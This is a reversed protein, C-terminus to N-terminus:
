KELIRCVEEYRILLDKYSSALEEYTIDEDDDSEADSICVGTLASVHRAFEDEEESDEDSWSVMLSKKQKKLYTACETRIHGYGECEHCKVGKTQSNKDELRTKKVNNQQKNIDFRISQGNQKSRRDVRRLVKGFQKGILALADAISEENEGATQSEEDDVNTICAISKKKKYGCENISIEFTQLSGVLEDVKINGIGHAEEIATVKMDFRKPLSRLIKKSLKEDYVKEGLAEFPNAIDLLNMHFDQIIEEEKMRLGEFKSTLLQLKSMKVKSTGEYCTMLIGWAEKASLCRKILKLMNTDLGNFLANIAKNNSLSAEDEAESKLVITSNGDKDFLM